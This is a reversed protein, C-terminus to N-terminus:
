RNLYTDFAMDMEDKDQKIVPRKVTRVPEPAVRKNKNEEIEKFVKEREKQREAEMLREFNKGKYFVELTDDPFPMQNKTISPNVYKSLEVLFPEDVTVGYKDQFKQINQANIEAAKLRNEELEKVKTKRGDLYANYDRQATERQDDSYKYEGSENLQNFFQEFPIEKGGVENALNELYVYKYTDEAKSKLAEFQKREESLSQTKKTYDFRQRLDAKLENLLEPNNKSLEEIVEDLPM